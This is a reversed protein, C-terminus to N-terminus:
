QKSIYANLASSYIIIFASLEIFVFTAQFCIQTARGRAACERPTSHQATKKRVDVRQAHTNPSSMMSLCLSHKNHKQMIENSEKDHVRRLMEVVSMRKNNVHISAALMQESPVSAWHEKDYNFLLCRYYTRKNNTLTPLLLFKSRSDLAHTDTLPHTHIHACCFLSLSLSLSLFDVNESHNKWCTIHANIMRNKSQKITTEKVYVGEGEASGNLGLARCFEIIEIAIVASPFEKRQKLAFRTCPFDHQCPFGVTKRRKRAKPLIPDIQEMQCKQPHLESRQLRRRTFYVFASIFFFFYFCEFSHMQNREM